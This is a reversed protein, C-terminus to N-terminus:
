DPGSVSDKEVMLNRRAWLTAHSLSFTRGVNLSMFSGRLRCSPVQMVTAGGLQQLGRVKSWNPHCFFGSNILRVDPNYRRDQGSAVRM